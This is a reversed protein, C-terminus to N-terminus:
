EPSGNQPLPPIPMWHTIEPWREDCWGLFKGGEYAAQTQFIKRGCRVFVTDSRIDNYTAKPLRESVPIWRAFEGEPRVSSGWVAQERERGAQWGAWAAAKSEASPNMSPTSVWFDKWWTLFDSTYSM